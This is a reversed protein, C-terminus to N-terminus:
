GERARAALSRWGSGDGCRVPGGRGDASTDMSARDARTLGGARRTGAALRPSGPSATPWTTSRRRSRRDQRRAVERGCRQLDHPRRRLRQRDRADACTAFAAELEHKRRRSASSCSAAAGPITADPHRRRSRRGPRPPPRRSSSGGTPSSAPPTSSTSCARRHDDDDLPGHKGAIIEVLLELGNRRAAEYLTRLTERRSPRSRRRRRRSPLLRPVQDHPDVPWEALRDGIDQTSSSASRARARSSSRGASGSRSSPRPSCRRAAMPRTSCCATAPGARRRGEGGGRRRAGQLANIRERPAGVRDAIAELQARHDIALAMLTEPQPRRTTAWHIHNLAEDKRLAHHPSGHKSSTAAAGGLDPIGALLPAALGRLRRLCQGLDRLDRAARRPALRAPVRGHLRRRRRARQLGRDPLGPRRHRGRAAGPDRRSLRRLGDARAEPRHHRRHARPDRRLASLADDGGGAIRM